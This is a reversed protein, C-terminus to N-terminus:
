KSDYKALESEYHAVWKKNNEIADLTRKTPSEGKREVALKKQIQGGLRKKYLSLRQKLDAINVDNNTNMKTNNKQTKKTNNRTLGHATFPKTNNKTIMTPDKTDKEGKKFFGIKRREETPNENAKDLPNPAAKIEPRIVHETEVELLESVDIIEQEQSYDYLTTQKKMIELDPLKNYALYVRNSLRRGIWASPFKLADIIPSIQFDTQAVEVVTNIKNRNEIISELITLVLVIFIAYGSLNTFLMGTVANISNAKSTKKDNAAKAKNVKENAQQQASAKDTERQMKFVALEAEEEKQIAQNEEAELQKYKAIQKHQSVIKVDIYKTNKSTRAKELRGIEQQATQYKQSYKNTVTTYKPAYRAQIDKKEIHFISDIEAKRNKLDVLYLDTNELDPVIKYKDHVSAASNKSMKFSYLSLCAMLGICFVYLAIDTTARKKKLWSSSLWAAIQSNLLDPIYAAGVFLLALVLLQVISNSPLYDYIQTQVGIFVTLASLILFVAKSPKITAYLPADTNFQEGLEPLSKRIKM